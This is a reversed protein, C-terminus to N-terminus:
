QDVTCDSSRGAVIGWRNCACLIFHRCWSGSKSEHEELNPVLKYRELLLLAAKDLAATYGPTLEFEDVEHVIGLDPPGINFVGVGNKDAPGPRERDGSLVREGRRKSLDNLTQDIITAGHKASAPAVLEQAIEPTSGDDLVLVPRFDASKWDLEGWGTDSIGKEGAKWLSKMDLETVVVPDALEAGSPYVERCGIHTRVLEDTKVAFGDVAGLEVAFHVLFSQALSDENEELVVNLVLLGVLFDEPAQARRDLGIAQELEEEFAVGSGGGGLGM